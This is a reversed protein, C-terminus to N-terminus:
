CERGCTALRVVGVPMAGEPKDVPIPNNHGWLLQRNRKIPFRLQKNVSHWLAVCTSGWCLLATETSYEM